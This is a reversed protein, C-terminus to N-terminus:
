GSSNDFVKFGIGMEDGVAMVSAQNGSRYMVLNDCLYNLSLHNNQVFKKVPDVGFVFGAGRQNVGWGEIDEPNSWCIDSILGSNPIEQEIARVEPSLGGHICYMSYDTLWAHGFRSICEEYFGYM